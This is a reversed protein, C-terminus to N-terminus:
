ILFHNLKTLNLQHIPIQLEGVKANGFSGHCDSGVTTLLDKQECLMLCQKTVDATHTTYYCEIGDLGMESFALLKKSFTLPHTEKISVGPHALVAIGGAAHIAEIATPVSPFPVCHYPCDYLDYLYFGERLSTTIGKELFYHLAKWGGKRRDYQFLQFDEKSIHHYKAEMKRILQFSIDDLYMRNTAVFNRFEPNSLDMGYGLIHINEHSDLTNLEIGSLYTIPAKTTNCLSQLELTGDLMDHDAIALIGVQNKIAADLIESVSMTGDSYYSHIHLDMTKNIM